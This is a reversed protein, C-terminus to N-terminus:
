SDRSTIALDVPVDTRGAELIKTTASFVRKISRDDPREDRLWGQIYARSEAAASESLVDLENGALYATGEAEFEKAGRHTRYERMEDPKTHGLVIHGVEHLLTPLPDVAVPNIAVFNDFAYGQVNGDLKTFPVEKISLAGLARVRDWEKPKVEPLPEGTTESVGFLCNVMKFRTFKVEDGKADERKLTIPRLIAKAKSGKIVQRGMEQWRKYTAVPEKVGQLYLLLQNGFSYNYFRCYTSGMNGPLELAEQMLDPWSFRQGTLELNQRGDEM